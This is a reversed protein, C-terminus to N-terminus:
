DDDIDKWLPPAHLVRTLWVAGTGKTRAERGAAGSDRGHPPVVQIPRLHISTAFSCRSCQHNAARRGSMATHSDIQCHLCDQRDGFMASYTITMAEGPAFSAKDLLLM